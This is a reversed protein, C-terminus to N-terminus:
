ITTQSRTVATGGLKHFPVYQTFADIDLLDAYTVAKSTIDTIDPKLPPGYFLVFQAPNLEAGNDRVYNLSSVVM